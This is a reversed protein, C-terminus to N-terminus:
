SQEELPRGFLDKGDKAMLRRLNRRERSKLPRPEASLRQLTDALAARAAVHRAERTEQRMEDGTKKGNAQAILDLSASPQTIRHRTM